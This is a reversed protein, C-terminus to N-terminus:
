NSAYAKLAAATREARIQNRHQIKLDHLRCLLQRNKEYNTPKVGLKMSSFYMPQPNPAELAQSFGNLRALSRESLGNGKKGQNHNPRKNSPTGRRDKRAESM